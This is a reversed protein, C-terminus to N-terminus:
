LRLLLVHEKNKLTTYFIYTDFLTIFLINTFMANLNFYFIDMLAVRVVQKFKKFAKM